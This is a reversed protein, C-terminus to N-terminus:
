KNLKLEIGLMLASANLLERPSKNSQLLEGKIDLLIDLPLLNVALCYFAKSRGDNHNHILYELFEKKCKIEEIFAEEGIEEIRKFDSLVNRYTIFSDKQGTNAYRKCPYESCNCCYEINGHLVSCNIIACSPHLLHFNEGGCGLCQSSGSTHHRPCLACCLGCLAFEPHKRLYEKM